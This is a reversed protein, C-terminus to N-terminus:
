SNWFHNTIVRRAEDFSLDGHVLKFGLTDEYNKVGAQTRLAAQEPTIGAEDLARAGAATFCRARLWDEVEEPDDFGTELWEDAVAEVSREGTSDAGSRLMVAIILRRTQRDDFNPPDIM